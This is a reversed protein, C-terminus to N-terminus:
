MTIIKKNIYQMNTLPKTIFINILDEFNCMIIKSKVRNSIFTKFIISKKLSDFKPM